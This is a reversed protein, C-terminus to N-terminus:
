VLLLEDKLGNLNLREPKHALAVKHLLLRTDHLSDDPLERAAALAEDGKLIRARTAGPPEVDVREGVDLHATAVAVEVGMAALLDDDPAAKEVNLLPELLSGAADAPYTDDGDVMLYYDADIDRLMQRVVNGKGQRPEFRVVAGHARAVSATEDSSNNDYVYVTAEPLTERFDDVVKGITMAENYCPVLVAITETM